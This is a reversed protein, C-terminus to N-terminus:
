IFGYIEQVRMCFIKTKIIENKTVGAKLPHIPTSSLLTIISSGVGNSKEAGM